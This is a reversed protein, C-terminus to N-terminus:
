ASRLWWVVAHAGVKKRGIASEENLSSLRKHAAQQTVDFAEAVEKATMVPAESKRFLEQLEEDSFKKRQDSSKPSM